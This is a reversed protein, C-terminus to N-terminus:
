SAARVVFALTRSDVPDCGVFGCASLSVALSYIGPETPSGSLVGGLSLTIGPPAGSAGWRYDVFGVNSEPSCDHELRFSYPRGVIGDPVAETRIGEVTCSPATSPECNAICGCGAQSLAPLLLLALSARSHM